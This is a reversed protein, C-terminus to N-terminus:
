AARPHDMQRAHKEGRTQRSFTHYVHVSSLYLHKMAVLDRAGSGALQSSSIWWSGEL